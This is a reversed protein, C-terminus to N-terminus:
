RPSARAGGALDGRQVRLGAAETRAFASMWRNGASRALRDATAFAELACGRDPDAAYGDAVCASALDTPSGTSAGVERARAALSRAEDLAGISSLAVSSMYCAHVLRSRNGSAEAVEIQRAAEAQGEDVQGTTYRVNALVREVLGCPLLGRAEEEDRAEQALDIATEYEGRVWAGYAHVGVMLPHAPHDVGEPLRCAGEAWAFVEYRLARM